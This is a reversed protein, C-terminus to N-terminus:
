QCYRITSLPVTQREVQHILECENFVNFLRHKPIALFYFPRPIAPRDQIVVMEKYDYELERLSIDSNLSILTAQYPTGVVLTDGPKAHSNLWTVSEKVSLGWYDTEFRNHAAPLGGFARNFYTYEYPYLHVMDVVIAGLAIAVFTAGALKYPLKPLMQYLWVLGVTAIAAIGPLVFSFQRLGDYITSNRLIAVLPLAFIQLLVLVLAARQLTSLQRFRVAALVLGAVFLLGFILPTTIGFWVPLYTWPVDAARIYDGNFLVNKFWAHRSLYQIAAILWSAPNSWSAPHWAITTAMWAVVILGYFGINQVIRQFFGKQ